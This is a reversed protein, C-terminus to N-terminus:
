EISRVLTTSRSHARFGANLYLRRAADNGDVYSVKLRTCGTAALLELGSTLVHTGLGRGQHQDETRMPEVLGVGTVPDAWFLGYAAIEGDPAVVALDLDPRYLSCELLREAVAPGSRPILHHPRDTSASRPVLRYGDPLPTVAPRETARMWCSVVVEDLASFGAAALRVTTPPDDDRVSTEIPKASMHQMREIAHPWLAPREFRDDDPVEIVDVGWGEGWDTMIVAAIPEDGDDFWFTANRPDDHQDRRWWWQLDAAEWIGGTPFRRRASHLLAAVTALYEFGGVEREVV